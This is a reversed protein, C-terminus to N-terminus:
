EDAQTDNPITKNPLRTIAWLPLTTNTFLLLYYYTTVLPQLQQLLIRASMITNNSKVIM